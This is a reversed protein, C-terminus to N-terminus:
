ERGVTAPAGPRTLPQTPSRGFYGTVLPVDAQPVVLELTATPTTMTIVMFTPVTVVGFVSGGKKVNPERQDAARTALWTVPLGIPVPKRRVSWFPTWSPGDPALVLRGQALRGPYPDHNGRLFCSVTRASGARIADLDNGSESPSPPRM